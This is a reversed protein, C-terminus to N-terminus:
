RGSGGPRGTRTMQHIEDRTVRLHVGDPSISAILRRPVEVQEGTGLLSQLMGGTRIVLARMDEERTDFRLDDVVGVEDGRSDLVPDGKAIALERPADDPAGTEASEDSGRAGPNSWFRGLWLYGSPPFTYAQPAIWGSPARGYHAPDFDPMGRLEQRSLNLAVTDETFTTDGAIEPPVVLEVPVVVNRGLFRGTNVVFHTVDAVDPDFIAYSIRGADEGERTIVRANLDVRM